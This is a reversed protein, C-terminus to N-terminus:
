SIPSISEAHRNVACNARSPRVLENQMARALGVEDAPFGTTPPYQGLQLQIQTGSVSAKARVEIRYARNLVMGAPPRSNETHRSELHRRDTRRAFGAGRSAFAVLEPCGFLLKLNIERSQRGGEAARIRQRRRFFVHIAGRIRLVERQPLSLSESLFKRLGLAQQRHNEQRNRNRATRQKWTLKPSHSSVSPM